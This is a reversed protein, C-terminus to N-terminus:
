ESLNRRVESFDRKVLNTEINKEEKLTETLHHYNFGQYKGRALEVVRRVTKDKRKCPRGRNRHIVGNAGEKSVRRKIRYCQQESIGLVVAASGAALEARFVRQIVDIRKDDLM